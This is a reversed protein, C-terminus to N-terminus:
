WCAGTVVHSLFTSVFPLNRDAAIAAVIDRLGHHAFSLELLAGYCLRRGFIPFDADCATFWELGIRPRLECFVAVPVDAGAVVKVVLCIREPDIM